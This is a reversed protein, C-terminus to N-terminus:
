MFLLPVIAQARPLGWYTKALDRYYATLIGAFGLLFPIKAPEWPTMNGLAKGASSTVVAASLPVLTILVIIFSHRQVLNLFQDRVCFSYALAFAAFALLPIWTRGSTLVSRANVTSEHATAQQELMAEAQQSDTPLGMLQKKEADYNQNIFRLRLIQTKEARAEAKNRSNYEPDSYLRYQVLMGVSFLLIATTYLTWNGAFRKVRSLWFLIGIVPVYLLIDRVASALPPQYGRLLAARTVAVYGAIEFAVIVLIALLHSSARNKM